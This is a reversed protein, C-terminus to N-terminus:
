SIKDNIKSSVIVDDRGFTEIDCSFDLALDISDFSRSIFYPNEWAYTGEVDAPFLYVQWQYDEEQLHKIRGQIAVLWHTAQFNDNSPLHFTQLAKRDNSGIPILSKPYFDRYDPQNVIFGGLLYTM